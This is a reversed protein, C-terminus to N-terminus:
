SQNDKKGFDWQFFFIGLMLFTAGIIYFGSGGQYIGLAILGLGASIFPLKLMNKGILQQSLVGM